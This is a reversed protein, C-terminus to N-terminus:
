EEMAPPLAKLEAELIELGEYAKAIERKKSEIKRKQNEILFNWADHKSKFFKRYDSDKRNRVERYSEEYIYKDTERAYSVRDVRPTAITWAWYGVKDNPM